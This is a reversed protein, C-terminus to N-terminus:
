STSCPGLSATGCKSGKKSEFLFAALIILMIALFFMPMGMKQVSGKASMWLVQTEPIHRLMKFVRLVALLRLVKLFSVEGGGVDFQISGITALSYGVEAYFPAIALADIINSSSRWFKQFSRASVLHLLFEITFLSVFVIEGTLMTESLDFGNNLRCQPM